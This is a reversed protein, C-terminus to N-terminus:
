VKALSKKRSKSVDNWFFTFLWTKKFDSFFMFYTNEFVSALAAKSYMVLNLKLRLNWTMRYIAIIYQISEMWRMQVLNCAIHSVYSKQLTGGQRTWGIKRRLCDQDVYRRIQKIHRLQYYYCTKVCIRAQDDFSLESDLQVGLYRVTSKASKCNHAM